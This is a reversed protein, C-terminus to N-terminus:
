EIHRVREPLEVGGNAAYIVLAVAGIFIGVGLAIWFIREWRRM